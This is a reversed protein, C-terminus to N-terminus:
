DDKNEKLFKKIGLALSSTFLDNITCKFVKSCAKIENIDFHTGLTLNKKGTFNEKSGDNMINFDQKKFLIYILLKIVYFPM